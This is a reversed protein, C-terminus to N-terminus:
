AIAKQPQRLCKKNSARVDKNDTIDQMLSDLVTVKQKENLNLTDMFKVAVTCRFAAIDKDIQKLIKEDTPYYIIAKKFM